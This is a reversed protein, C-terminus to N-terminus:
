PTGKSGKGGVLIEGRWRVPVYMPRPNDLERDAEGAVVPIALYLGVDYNGPMPFMSDTGVAFSYERTENAPIVILPVDRPDPWSLRGDSSREAGEPVLRWPFIMGRASRSDAEHVTMHVPNDRTGSQPIAVGNPSQNDMSLVVSLPAGAEVPEVRKFTLFIDNLIDSSRVDVQVPVTKQGAFEFVLSYIGAMPEAPTWYAAGTSEMYAPEPSFWNMSMTESRGNPWTVQLFCADWYDPPILKREEKGVGVQFRIAEGTFFGSKELMLVPEMQFIRPEVLQVRADRIPLDAGMGDLQMRLTGRIGADGMVLAGSPLYGDSLDWAFEQEASGGPPLVLPQEGRWECESTRFGWITEEADPGQYLLTSFGTVDLHLVQPGSNTIVVRAVAKGDLPINTEGSEMFATLGPIAAWRENMCTGGPTKARVVVSHNSAALRLGPGDISDEEGLMQYGGVIGGVQLLYKRSLDTTSTLRYVRQSEITSAHEYFLTMGWQADFSKVEEACLPAMLLSSWVLGAAVANFRGLGIFHHIRASM